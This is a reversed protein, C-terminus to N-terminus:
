RACVPEIAEFPIDFVSLGDDDAGVLHEPRLGIIQNQLQALSPHVLDDETAHQRIHADLGMQALKELLAELNGYDFVCRSPRAMRYPAVAILGRNDVVSKKRMCNQRGIFRDTAHALRSPSARSPAFRCLDSM